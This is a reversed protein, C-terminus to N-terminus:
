RSDSLSDAVHTKESISRIVQDLEEASLRLYEFAQEKEESNMKSNKFLELLGMIRALPARIVHSQMWSIQLLKENQEEIAKIYNLRDTIDKFYVSLGSKSPYASIEYWKGLTPYYDDFHIAENTEMALHYKKYSELYVADSFVDWINHGLVQTKSKMLVREAMKNWYTVIWNGDVAFFADGISELITNREELAQTEAIEARKRADIDQFSGYLRACKGDIFEAEVIVRIWKTNGKATVIQLEEDAATCNEIAETIIKVIRERDEGEKYFNVAAEIGPVYGPEVEHIERTIDSWYVTRNNIVDVEWAGIRALTNAKDLLEELNKRESIDRIFMSVGGDSAPFVRNEQWLNLPKYYDENCVYIREKMATQIANYTESGVADPFLEWVNKGIMAQPDRALMKGTQKNVYTYRMQEDLAIFGDTISELIYEIQETRKLLLEGSKIKESIDRFNCVIADIGEDKLMNTFVCEIWIFHGDAHQVRFFTTEAHGSTEIVRELEARVRERDDPHTLGLVSNKVREETEWGVIREASRTRYIINLDEDLLTIGDLSNEVLKRFRIDEVANGRSHAPVQSIDTNGQKSTKPM